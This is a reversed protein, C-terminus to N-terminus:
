YQIMVSSSKRGYANGASYKKICHPRGMKVTEYQIGGWGVGRGGLTMRVMEEEQGDM